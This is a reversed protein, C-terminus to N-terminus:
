MLRMFCLLMNKKGHLDYNSTKNVFNQLVNDNYLGQIIYVMGPTNAYRPILLGQPQIVRRIVFTGTCQFLENTEDFYETVGAESRMNQLPEFAQLREFRCERFSGQRHTQWPNTRPDFLQAM